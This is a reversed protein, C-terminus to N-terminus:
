EVKTKHQVGMELPICVRSLILETQEKIYQALTYHKRLFWRRFAWMDGLIIIDHSILKADHPKFEGSQCGSVLIKEFAEAILEDNRILKKRQAPQLNGAEHYWFLTIDQYNGVLSFYKEIAIRLAEESGTKSLAEGTEQVLDSLFRSTEEQISSLIDDKSRFYHYLTGVTIGSHRAIERVTTKLYGKRVFLTGAARIIQERRSDTPCAHASPSKNSISINVV